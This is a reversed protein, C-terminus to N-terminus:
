KLDSRQQMFGGVLEECGYAITL